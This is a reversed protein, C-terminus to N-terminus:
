SVKGVWEIRWRGENKYAVGPILEYTGAYSFLAELIKQTFYRREGKVQVALIKKRNPMVAILDFPGHSGAARVLFANPDDAIIDRLIDAVYYEMSRGRIYPTKRAM